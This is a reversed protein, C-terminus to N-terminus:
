LRVVHDASFIKEIVERYTIMPFSSQLGRAQLDEDLVSVRRVPVGTLRVGEQLLIVEPEANTDTGRVFLPDEELLRASTILYLLTGM